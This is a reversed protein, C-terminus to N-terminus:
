NVFVSTNSIYYNMYPSEKKIDEYSNYFMDSYDKDEEILKIIKCIIKSFEEAGKGSLHQDDAYSESDSFATYRGVLLNGDIFVCDNEQCFSELYNHLNEMGAYEWNLRDSELSQIIIPRAGYQKCLAVMKKLNEMNETPFNLGVTKIGYNSIIENDKLTIDNSHENYRFGKDAYYCNDVSSTGLFSIEGLVKSVLYKTGENMLKGYLEYRVSFDVNSFFYKIRDNKALRPLAYYEGSVSPEQMLSNHSIDIVVYKINNRSLEDELLYTRADWTMAPGSLNYSTCLNEDIVYTSYHNMGQSAGCILLEITGSLRNRNKLDFCHEWESNVLSSVVVGSVVLIVSLFVVASVFIKKFTKM